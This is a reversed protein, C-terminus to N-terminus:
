QGWRECREISLEIEKQVGLTYAYLTSDKAFRMLEKDLAEKREILFQKELRIALQLAELKDTGHRM